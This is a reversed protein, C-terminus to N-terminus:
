SSEVLSCYINLEPWPADLWAAGGKDAAASEPSRLGLWRPDRQEPPPLM